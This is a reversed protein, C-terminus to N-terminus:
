LLTLIRAFGRDIYGSLIDACDRYAEISGGYPDRVDRRKGSMDALRHVKWDYQPWTNLIMDAHEQSMVLILDAEAVDNATITHAIHDSIDISREAMVVCANESASSGDLAWIGASFVRHDTEVHGQGLKRRMLGAAMPSRCVNGSCVFLISSM